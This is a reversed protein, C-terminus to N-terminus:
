GDHKAERNGPWREISGKARRTTAPCPRLPLPWAESTQNTYAISGVYRAEHLAKFSPLDCAWCTGPSHLVLEDCHPGCYGSLRQVLHLVSVYDKYDKDISGGYRDTM